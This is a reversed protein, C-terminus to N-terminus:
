ATQPRRGGSSNLFRACAAAFAPARMLQDQREAEVDLQIGIDRTFSEDVLRRTEAIVGPAIAALRRAVGLAEELLQADDAVRWILGWAEAQAATIREGLLCMGLSRARGVARPLGWTGGLDPVIGLAPAQPLLFYTSRSALAVDASLALGVGGGVCAGNIACVVPVPSNRIAHVLAAGDEHLFRSLRQALAEPGGGANEHFWRLDGGATFARGKGTLVIASAQTGMRVISQAATQALTADIANLAEPRNLTVIAVRDSWDVEVPNQEQHQM